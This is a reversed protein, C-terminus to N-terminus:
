GCIPRLVRTTRGSTKERKRPAVFEHATPPIIPIISRLIDRRTEGQYLGRELRARINKKGASTSRGLFVLIRDVIRDTHRTIVPREDSGAQLPGQGVMTRPTLLDFLEDFLPQDLQTDDFAFDFALSIQVSEDRPLAMYLREVLAVLVDNAQRQAPSGSQAVQSDHGHFILTVGDPQLSDLLNPFAARLAGLNREPFRPLSATQAVILEVAEEIQADSWQQWDRLDFAVDVAARHRHAATILARKASAWQQRHRLELSQEQKPLRPDNAHGLEMGYFAVRSVLGFDITQARADVLEGEPGIVQQGAEPLLWFPYFGYVAASEGPQPTCGCDPQALPEITRPANPNPTQRAATRLIRQIMFDSLPPLGDNQVTDNLADVFLRESPYIIGALKQLRQSLGLATTETASRAIYDISLIQQQLEPSFSWSALVLPELAAIAADLRQQAKAEALPRLISLAQARM